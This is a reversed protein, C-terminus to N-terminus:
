NLSYGVMSELEVDLSELIHGMDDPSIEDFVKPVYVENGRGRYSTVPEFVSSCKLKFEKAIADIFESPFDRVDEYNVFIFHEVKDEISLFNLIKSTRLCLLNKFREGSSPDREFIMEKGYQKDELSHGSAKDYICHWEHRIFISFNKCNKIEPCTHFPNEYMSRVWDLPNRVVVVFLTDSTDAKQIDENPFFHKHGYKATYKLDINNQILKQIYNTGSAREGFIQFNSIM